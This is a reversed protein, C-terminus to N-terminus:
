GNSKYSRVVRGLQRLGEMGAQQYYNAVQSIAMNAGGENISLDGLQLSAVQIGNTAMSNLVAAATLDVLVQGYVGEDIGTSGLSRGTYNNLKVVQRYAIDKLVTGSLTTPLNIIVANVQASISGTDWAIKIM